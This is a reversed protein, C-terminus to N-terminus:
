RRSVIATRFLWRRGIVIHARLNSGDRLSRAARWIVEAACDEATSEVQDSKERDAHLLGASHLPSIKCVMMSWSRPCAIKTADPSPVPRLCIPLQPLVTNPIGIDELGIRVCMLTQQKSSPVEVKIHLGRRLGLELRDSSVDRWQVEMRQIYSPSCRNWRRTLM